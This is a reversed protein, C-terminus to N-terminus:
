KLDHRSYRVYCPYRTPNKCCYKEPDKAFETPIPRKPYRFDNYYACNYYDKLDAGNNLFFPQRVVIRDKLKQPILLSKPTKLCSCPQNRGLLPPMGGNLKCKCYYEEYNKPKKYIYDDCGTCTRYTGTTLSEDLNNIAQNPPELTCANRVQCGAQDYDWFHDYPEVTSVTTTWRNYFYYIGTIIVLIFIVIIVLTTLTIM